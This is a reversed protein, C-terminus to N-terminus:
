HWRILLIILTKKGTFIGLASAALVSPRKHGDLKAYRDLYHGAVKQRYERKTSIKEPLIVVISNLRLTKHLVSGPTFFDTELPSNDSPSRATRKLFGKRGRDYPPLGFFLYHSPKLQQLSSFWGDDCYSMIICPVNKQNYWVHVDNAAHQWKRDDHLLCIKHHIPDKRAAAKFLSILRETQKEADENSIVGEFASLTGTDDNYRQQQHTSLSAESPSATRKQGRIAAM